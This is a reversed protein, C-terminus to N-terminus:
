DSNKGEIKNQNDQLINIYDSCFIDDNKLNEYLAIRKDLIETLQKIESEISKLIIEKTM